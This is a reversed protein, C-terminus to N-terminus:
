ADGKYKMAAKVEKKSRVTDPKWNPKRAVVERNAAKWLVVGELCMLAITAPKDPDFKQCKDCLPAHIAFSGDLPMGREAHYPRKSM